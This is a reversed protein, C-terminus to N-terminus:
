CLVPPEWGKDVRLRGLIVVRVVGADDFRCGVDEGPRGVFTESQVTGDMRIARSYMPRDDKLDFKHKM